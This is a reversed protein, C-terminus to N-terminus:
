KKETINLSALSLLKTAHQYRCTCLFHRLTKTSKFACNFFLFSAQKPIRLNFPCFMKQLTKTGKVTTSYDICDGEVEVTVFPNFHM